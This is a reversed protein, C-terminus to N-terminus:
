GRGPTSSNDTWVSREMTFIATVCVQDDSLAHTQSMKAFKFQQVTHIPIVHPFTLTNHGVLSPTANGQRKVADLVELDGSKGVKHDQRTEQDEDGRIGKPKQSPTQQDRNGGSTRKKSTGRPDHVGIM